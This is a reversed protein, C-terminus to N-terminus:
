TGMKYHGEMFESADTLLSVHVNLPDWCKLRERNEKKSSM